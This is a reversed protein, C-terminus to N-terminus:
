MYITHILHISCTISQSPDYISSKGDDLILDADDGWNGEDAEVLDAALKNGGSFM